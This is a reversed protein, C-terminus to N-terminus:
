ENHYNYNTIIDFGCSKALDVREKSPSLCVAVVVGKLGEKIAQANLEKLALNVNKSSGFTEILGEMSFFTILPKGDVKLYSQDKFLRCWYSILSKWHERKLEYGKHNSVM